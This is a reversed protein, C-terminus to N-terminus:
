SARSYLRKLRLVQRVYQETEPYPPIGGHRRVANEGANYAAIALILRHDFQELLFKLHRVGAEINQLPNYIDDVGHRQATQPLVQMLGLAGKHSRAYPNFSSEVHMIAKVLAFDVGHRECVARILPDYTDPAARFFQSNRSAVLQGLRDGVTGVRVLRYHRHNLRHDTVMRTGDPLEYVYLLKDGAGAATAAALLGLCLLRALRPRYGPAVQASQRFQTRTNFEQEPAAGNGM